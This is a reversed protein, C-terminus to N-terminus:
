LESAICALTENAQVVTLGQSILVHLQQSVFTPEQLFAPVFKMLREQPRIEKAYCARKLTVHASKFFDFTTYFYKQLKQFSQKNHGDINVPM